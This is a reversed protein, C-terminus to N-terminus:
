VVSESNRTTALGGVKPLTPPNKLPTLGDSIIKTLQIVSQNLEAYEVLQRGIERGDAAVKERLGKLEDVLSDIERTSTLSMRRMLTELNNRALQVDDNIQDDGSEAPALERGEVHRKQEAQEIHNLNTRDIFNMVGGEIDDRPLSLARISLASHFQSSMAAM